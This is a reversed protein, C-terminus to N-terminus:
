TPDAQGSMVSNHSCGRSKLYHEFSTIFSLKIDALLYETQGFNLNLFEKIHKLSTLFKRYTAISYEGVEVMKYFQKNHSDFLEILGWNKEGIGIYMDRLLSASLVKNSEEITKRFSYIQYEVSQLYDNLNQAQETSGKARNKAVDWLKSQISRKLSVEKNSGNVTIRMFVPAEGNKKLKTRKIYFLVTCTSREM